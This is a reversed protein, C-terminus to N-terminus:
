QRRKTYREQVDLVWQHDHEPTGVIAKHTAHTMELNALSYGNAKDVTRTVRLVSERSQIDLTHYSVWPFDDVLDCLARNLKAHKRMIPDADLAGALYRLDSCETYHDLSFDLDGYKEILDIKSLVNVAPLELKIVTTLSTLLVAIFKTADTCYHSDVLNVCAIRYNLAVMRQVVTRICDNHTYLEVQGPFDFLIYDKKHKELRSELWKFNEALMEMAYLLSGNPGLGFEAAVDEARVLDRVSAAAEYPLADNAPDMNFV